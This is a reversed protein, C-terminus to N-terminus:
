KKADRKNVAYKLRRIYTKLLPMGDERGYNVFPLSYKDCYNEFDNPVMNKYDYLIYEEDEPIKFDGPSEPSKKQVQIKFAYKLLAMHVSLLRGGAEISRREAFPLDYYKCFSEFDDNFDMSEYSSIMKAAEALNPINFNAIKEKLAQELQTYVAGRKTIARRSIPNELPKELWAVLQKDSVRFAPAM